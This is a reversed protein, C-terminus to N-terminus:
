MSRYSMAIDILHFLIYCPPAFAFPLILQLNQLRRNTVLSRRRRVLPFMHGFMSGGLSSMVGCKISPLFYGVYLDHSALLRSYQVSSMDKVAIM